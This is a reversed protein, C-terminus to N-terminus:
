SMPRNDNCGNYLLNGAQGEGGPRDEPRRTAPDPPMLLIAAIDAGAERFSQM